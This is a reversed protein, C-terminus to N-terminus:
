KRMEKQRLERKKRIRRVYDPYQAALGAAFAQIFRNQKNLTVTERTSNVLTKVTVAKLWSLEMILRGVTERQPGQAHKPHMWFKLEKVSVKGFVGLLLLIKMMRMSKDKGIREVVQWEEWLYYTFPRQVRKRRFTIEDDALLRAM